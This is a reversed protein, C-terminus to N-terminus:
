IPFLALLIFSPCCTVKGLEDFIFELPSPFSCQLAIMRLLPFITFIETWTPSLSCSPSLAFFEKSSYISFSGVLFSITVGEFSSVRLTRDGWLNLFLLSSPWNVLNRSTKLFSWILMGNESTSSCIGPYTLNMFSIRALFLFNPSYSVTAKDSSHLSYQM